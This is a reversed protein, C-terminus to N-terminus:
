QPLIHICFPRQAENTSGTIDAAEQALLIAYWNSGVTGGIGNTRM